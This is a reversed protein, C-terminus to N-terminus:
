RLPSTSSPPRISTFLKPATVPRNLNLDSTTTLTVSVCAASVRRPGEDVGEATAVAVDSTDRTKTSQDDAPQFTPSTAAGHSSNTLDDHGGDYHPGSRAHM